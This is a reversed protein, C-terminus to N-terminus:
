AGAHRRFTVVRVGDPHLGHDRIEGTRAFGAKALVGLSAPNDARARARLVPFRGTRDAARLLANAAETMLGRGWYPEGLWYGLEPAPDTGFSLGIVGLFGEAPSTIAYPRQDDRRAFEEVFAFAEASTYPHPLRSVMQQVRINNALFALAPIDAHSPARLVLRASAITQPLANRLDLADRLDLANM